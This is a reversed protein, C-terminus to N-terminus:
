GDSFMCGMTADVIKQQLDPPLSGSSGAEMLSEVDLEGEIADWICGCTEESQGGSQCEGMFAARAETPLSGGGGTSPTTTSSPETTTPAESTTTADETTTPAETTTSAPTETTAPADTTRPPLAETVTDASVGCGTVVLAALAVIAVIPARATSRNTRKM